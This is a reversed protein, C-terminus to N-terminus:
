FSDWLLDATHLQKGEKIGKNSLRAKVTRKQEYDYDVTKYEDLLSKQYLLGVSLSAYLHKAIEEFPWSFSGGNFEELEYIVPNWTIGYEFRTHGL